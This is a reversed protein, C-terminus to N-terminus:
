RGRTSSKAKRRVVVPAPADKRRALSMLEDMAARALQVARAYAAKSPKASRGLRARAKLTGDIYERALQSSDKAM